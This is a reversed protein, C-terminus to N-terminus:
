NFQVISKVKKESFTRGNQIRQRSSGFLAIIHGTMGVHDTLCLRCKRILFLVFVDIKVIRPGIESCLPDLTFAFYYENIRAHGERGRNVREAQSHGVIPLM